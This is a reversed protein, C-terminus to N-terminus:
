KRRPKLLEVVAEILLVFLGGLSFYFVNFEFIDM